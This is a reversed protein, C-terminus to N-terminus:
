NIWRVFLFIGIIVIIFVIGHILLEKKREKKAQRRVSNKIEILEEASLNMARFRTPQTTSKSHLPTNNNGKFKVKKSPRQARNQKLRNNMDQIHGAGFSM